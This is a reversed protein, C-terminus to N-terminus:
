HLLYNKVEPNKFRWLVNDIFYHHINIFGLFAIMFFSAKMIQASQNASDLSNPFFDFFLYGIIVMLLFFLFLRKKAERNQKHEYRTKEVKAVFPFYQLSHFFAFFYFFQPNSFMPIHWTLLALMPVIFNLSPKEGNKFYKRLLVAIVLVMLIVFVVVALQYLWYPLNVRYVQLGYYGYSGSACNANLWTLWWTSLLGYRIINREVNSLAYKDLKAYVMMCGFTQKSYHWGVTFFMFVTMWGVVEAGLNPYLGFRTGLGIIKFFDNFELVFFSNRIDDHWNGFAVIITILLVVPVLLLQFWNKLVFGQGQTYALKYSAMFHPYNVFYALYFAIWSITYVSTSFWSVRGSLLYFPIWCVISLGGILWFDLRRSIWLYNRPQAQEVQDSNVHVEQTM